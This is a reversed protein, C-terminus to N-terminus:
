PLIGEVQRYHDEGFQSRLARRRPQSLRPICAAIIRRCMVVDSEGIHCADVGLAKALWFYERTRRLNEGEPANLWLSDFAAHAHRRWMRLERNAPTGKPRHTGKHVGVYADCTSYRSCTWVLGYSTGRYVLSSDVLQTPSDCYPCPGPGPHNPILSM